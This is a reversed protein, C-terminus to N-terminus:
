SSLQFDGSGAQSPNSAENVTPLFNLVVRLVSSGPRNTCRYGQSILKLGRRQLVATVIPLAPALMMYRGSAVGAFVVTALPYPCM